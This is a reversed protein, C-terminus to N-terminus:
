NDNMVVHTVNPNTFRFLFYTNKPKGCDPLADKILNSRSSPRISGKGYGLLSVDNCHKFSLLSPSDNIHLYSIAHHTHLSISSIQYVTIGQDPYHLFFLM